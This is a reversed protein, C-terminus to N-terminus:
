VDSLMQSMAYKSSRRLSSPLCAPGSGGAIHMMISLHLGLKTKVRIGLAEICRVILSM